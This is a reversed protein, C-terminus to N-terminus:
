IIYKDLVKSFADKSTYGKIEELIEGNKIILVTPISKIRYRTFLIHNNDINVKGVKVKDTYEEALEDIIPGLIKCPGCWPAWFDILSIENDKAIETDFNTDTLELPKM